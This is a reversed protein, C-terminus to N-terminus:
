SEYYARKTTRYIWLTLLLTGGLTAELIYILNHHLPDAVERYQICAVVGFFLHYGAAAYGYLTYRDEDQRLDAAVLGFPVLGMGCLWLISTLSNNPGYHVVDYVADWGSWLLLLGVLALLFARVPSWRAPAPQLPTMFGAAPARRCEECLGAGDPNLRKCRVCYTPSFPDNMAALSGRLAQSVGRPLFNGGRGCRYPRIKHEGKGV